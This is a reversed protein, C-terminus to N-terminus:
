QKSSIYGVVIGVLLSPLYISIDLLNNNKLAIFGLILFVYPVLRYLSFGARGGKKIDSINLIKIKKKEQKVIEKLDLEEYPANNLPEEDYLEYPDELEDLFERKENINEAQIQTEIM